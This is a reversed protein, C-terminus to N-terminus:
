GVILVDGPREGCQVLRSGILPCEDTAGQPSRQFPQNVVVPSHLIDLSVSWSKSTAIIQAPGRPFVRGSWILVHCVRASNGPPVLSQNLTNSIVLELLERRQQLLSLM